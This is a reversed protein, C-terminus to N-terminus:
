INGNEIQKNEVINRPQSERTKNLKRVLRSYVEMCEKRKLDLGKRYKGNRRGNMEKRIKKNLGELGASISLLSLKITGVIWGHTRIVEIDEDTAPNLNHGTFKCIIIRGNSNEIKFSRDIIYSRNILVGNNSEMAELWVQELERM